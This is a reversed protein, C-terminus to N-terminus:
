QEENAMIESVSLAACESRQQQLGLLFKQCDTSGIGSFSAFQWAFIGFSAHWLIKKPFCQFASCSVVKKHKTSQTHTDTLPHMHIYDTCTHYTNTHIPKHVNVHTHKKTCFIIYVVYTYKCTHAPLAVSETAAFYMNEVWQLRPLHDRIPTTPRTIEACLSVVDTYM